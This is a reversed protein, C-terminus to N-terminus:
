LLDDHRCGRAAVFSYGNTENHYNRQHHTKVIGRKGFVCPIESPKRLVATSIAIQIGAFSWMFQSKQTSFRVFDDIDDGM